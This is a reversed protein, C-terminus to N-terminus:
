DLHEGETRTQHPPRSIRLFCFNAIEVYTSLKLIQKTEQFCVHYNGVIPWVWNIEVVSLKSCYQCELKKESKVSKCGEAFGKQDDTKSPDIEFGFLRVIKKEMENRTEMSKFDLAMSGLVNNKKNVLPSIKPTAISELQECARKVVLEGM